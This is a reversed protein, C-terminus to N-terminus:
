WIASEIVIHCNEVVIYSLEIVIYPMEFNVKTKDHYGSQKRM